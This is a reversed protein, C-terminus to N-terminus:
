RRPSLLQGNAEFSDDLRQRADLPTWRFTTRMVKRSARVEVRAAITDGAEVPAGAQLHNGAPTLILTLEQGRGTVKLIVKVAHGAPPIVKEERDTLWLQLKGDSVVVEVHQDGLHAIVGGNPARHVHGDVLQGAWWGALATVVLGAIAMAPDYSM